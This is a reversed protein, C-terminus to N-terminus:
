ADATGGADAEQRGACIRARIGSREDAPDAQRRPRDTRAADRPDGPRVADEACRDTHRLDGHEQRQGPHDARAEPDRAVRHDRHPHDPLRDGVRSARCRHAGQVPARRPQPYRGRPHRVARRKRHDRACARPRRAVELRRFPGRPVRRGVHVVMEQVQGQAGQRRLIRGQGHLSDHTSMDAAVARRRHRGLPEGRHHWRGSTPHERSGSRDSAHSATRDAGADERFVM